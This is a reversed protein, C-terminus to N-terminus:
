FRPEAPSVPSCPPEARTTHRRAPIIKDLLLHRAGLLLGRAHKGLFADRIGLDALCVRAALAVYVAVGATYGQCADRGNFSCFVCSCRLCRRPRGHRWTCKRRFPRPAPPARGRRIEDLGTDPVHGAVRRLVHGSGQRLLLPRQLPGQGGLERPLSQHEATWTGPHRPRSQLAFESQSWRWLLFLLVGPGLRGVVMTPGQSKPWFWRHPLRGASASYRGCKKGTRWASAHGFVGQM